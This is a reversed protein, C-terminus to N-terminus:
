ADAMHTHTLTHTHTPPSSHTVGGGGDGGGDKDAERGGQVCECECTNVVSTYRYIQAYQAHPLPVGQRGAQRGGWGRKHGWSIPTKNDVEQRAMCFLLLNALVIQLDVAFVHLYQYSM